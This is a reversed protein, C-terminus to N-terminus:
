GYKFERPRFDTVHDTALLTMGMKKQYFRKLTPSHTEHQSWYVTEYDKFYRAFLMEFYAKGRGGGEHTPFLGLNEIEIVPHNAAGWFREKVSPDPATVFTYGIPKTESVDDDMLEFLATEPHILKESLSGDNYRDQSKWHWKEDMKSQLLSLRAETADIPYMDLSSRWQNKYRGATLGKIYDTRNLAFHNKAILTM